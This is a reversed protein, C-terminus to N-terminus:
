KGVEGHDASIAPNRDEGPEDTPEQALSPDVIPALMDSRRDIAYSDALDSAGEM